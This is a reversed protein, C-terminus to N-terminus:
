KKSQPGTSPTPRHFSALLKRSYQNAIGRSAAIRLLKAMPEGEDIFTRVYDESEALSLARELTTLAQDVEGQTQWAISQLTLIEILSGTRKEAEVKQQLTELLGHIEDVEGQAIRLRVLVLYPLESWFDPMDQLNLKPEQSTAWRNAANVDGQALSLRAKWALAHRLTFINVTKTRIDEVRQLAETMAKINGFAQNQWALMLNGIVDPRIVGGREALKTGISAYHIAENIDNWEYLVQSLGVYANGTVPLPEDDGWQSGLRLAERYQEAAQYLHGQMRHIDALYSMSFLSIYLHEGVQGLTNAEELHRRAAPLDGLTWYSFGLDYFVSARAALDDELPYKLAEHCLEIVRKTDGDILSRTIRVARVGNRIKAHDPFSEAPHKEEARSMALEASQIFSEVADQHGSLQNTQACFLCLWPRNTILTSPLKELWSLVTSGYSYMIMTRAVPEVLNAAREYDKAGFAHHIAKSTMREHEFWRSARLHLETMGGQQYQLLQNRLLDAFIHHYRYWKREDDLPILFLNAAELQALRERGDDRKTVANCLSATFDNLIATELLFSQTGAEQGRLLEEILYDLIYRNSGSFEAIFTSIDERGQMSVAALQLGAIWGETRYELTAVNEDSLGLDMVDNLFATAEEPIFRLDTARMEMLQNQVRLQALPIPPDTRSVIVLHAQPPLHNIFFHVADHVPQTEITHYDDLVLAFEEGVGSMDNIIINIIYEIPPAQPSQLLGMTSKGIDAHVAQLASIFYSWFRTPDNDYEDLTLWGAPMQSSRVGQSVLTTKGYGEPAAVLTLKLKLGSKLGELLRPRSILEPRLPPAYLKTKLLPIALQIKLRERIIDGL